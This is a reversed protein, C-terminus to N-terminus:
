YYVGEDEERGKLDREREVKEAGCAEGVLNPKRRCVLKM